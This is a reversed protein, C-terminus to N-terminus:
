APARRWNAAWPRPPAPLKAPEQGKSGIVPNGTFAAVRLTGTPALEAKAAATPASSPGACGAVAASMALVVSWGNTQM